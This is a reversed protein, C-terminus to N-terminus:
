RGAVQDGAVFVPDGVHEDGAVRKQSRSRRRRRGSPWSSFGLLLLLAGVGAISVLAGEVFGPTQYHFDIVHAGASVPVARVLVDAREVAVSAGDVVATWGPAWADLLVAYGTTSANCHLRVHEPSLAERRCAMPTGPGQGAANAGSDGTPDSLFHVATPDAQPAFMAARVAQETAHRRWRPTVFARPRRDTVRALAFRPDSSAVVLEFGPAAAAPAPVFALEVDFLGLLRRARTEAGEEWMTRLRQPLAPDYGPAYAVGFRTGVNEIASDHLAEAVSKGTVRPVMSRHRYLRPAPEEPRREVAALLAPEEAVASRDVTATFRQAEAILHFAVAVGVVAAAVRTARRARLVLAGAFLAAVGAALVAGRTAVAAAATSDFADVPALVAFVAGALQWSGVAALAAAFAAVLGTGVAARSPPDVLWRQLGVGALPWWLCLAGALHREPYRIVQEPLVATRYLEYVPTYTGLALVVFTLSLAVLARRGAGLALLLVPAGVYVSTSWSPAMFPDAASNAVLRAAHGAGDTPDGLAGPWVLELLRWPHMSWGGPDTGGDRVSQGLLALAPLVQVAAVAVAVILAAVVAAFSALRARGRAVAVGTALLGGTVAGAPDGSLILLAFVVALVLAAVVRRRGVRRAVRDAAWGVWPLWALTMLPVGNAAMSATYGAGLAVAGAFAAPWPGAGLRRSWLAVGFALWTGHVVIVLDAGLPQPFLAALWAPPYLAGHMPNALFPTGLGVGDWWHPLRGSRLSEALYARAPVTLTLHDRDAWTQGGLLVRAYAVVSTAVLALAALSSRSRNSSPATL